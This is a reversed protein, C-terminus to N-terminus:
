RELLHLMSRARTLDRERRTLEEENRAVRGQAEKLAAEAEQKDMDELPVAENAVVSLTDGKMQAFGGGVFYWKSGGQTMDLRMAGDGLKMMLPARHWMVGLQGDHAPVSAYAVQDSFLERQPTVVTCQFTQAM